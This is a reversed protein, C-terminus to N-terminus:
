RIENEKIGYVKANLLLQRIYERSCNFIRSIESDKLGKKKFQLIRVMKSRIRENTHTHHVYRLGYRGCIIRANQVSVGLEKANDLLTKNNDWKSTYKEKVRTSWAQYGKTRDRHIGNSNLFVRAGTLGMKIKSAFESLTENPDYKCLREVTMMAKPHHKFYQEIAEQKKM